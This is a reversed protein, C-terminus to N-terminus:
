IYCLGSLDEDAQLLSPSVQFPAGFPNDDKDKRSVGWTQSTLWSFYLENLITLLVDQALLKKAGKALIMLSLIPMMSPRLVVTWVM